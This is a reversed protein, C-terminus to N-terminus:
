LTGRLAPLCTNACGLAAAASDYLPLESIDWSPPIDGDLFDLPVQRWKQITSHYVIVLGIGGARVVKRMRPLQELKDKTLRFDHKTEKVEIAGSVSVSSRFAGEYKWWYLFDSIQAKFAGRAARADALREYAFAVNQENLKKLVKEVQQEAWKGRDAFKGATM